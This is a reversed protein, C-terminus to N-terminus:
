SSSQALRARREAEDKLDRNFAQFVAAVQGALSRGMVHTMGGTFGDTQVFRTRGNPLTEVTYRHNDRIGLIVPDSWGFERGEEFYVLAHSPTQEIGLALRFTTHITGGARFDGTVQVLSDNWEGIHEFDTLTAWVLEHSAEIEISTHVTVHDPAVPEVRVQENGDAPPPTILALGHAVDLYDHVRVVRGERVTLFVAHVNDYPRGDATLAQVQVRRAAREGQLLLEDLTAQVTSLDLMQGYLGELIERARAHGQFPAVGASPMMWWSVEPDLLALTEDAHGFVEVFRRAIQETSLPESM